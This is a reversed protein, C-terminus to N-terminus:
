SKIELEEINVKCPSVLDCSSSTSSPRSTKTITEEYLPPLCVMLFVGESLDESTSLFQKNDRNLSSLFEAQQDSGQFDVIIINQLSTKKRTCRQYFLFAIIGILLLTVTPLVIYFIVETDSHNSSTYENWHRSHLLFM